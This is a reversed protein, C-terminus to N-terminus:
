CKVVIANEHPLVTYIGYMQKVKTEPAATTQAFTVKRSILESFLKSLAHPTPEPM